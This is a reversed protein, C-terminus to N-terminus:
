AHWGAVMGFSKREERAKHAPDIRVALVVDLRVGDTREQRADPQEAHETVSLEPRRRRGSEAHGLCAINGM